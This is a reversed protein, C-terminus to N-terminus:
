NFTNHQTIPATPHNIVQGINKANVTIGSDTQQLVAALENLLDQRAAVKERIAEKVEPRAALQQSIDAATATESLGLTQFEAHFLNGFKDALDQRADFLTEVTKEAVKEGAKSLFPSLFVAIAALTIM